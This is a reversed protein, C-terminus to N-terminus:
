RIADSDGLLRPATMLVIYLDFWFGAREMYEMDLRVRERVEDASHVPGRSGNIQAWGSLGPKMRHRHAYEAVINHVEVEEATMSIPHPRPGVLSMDGAFINFLQPLEDLSTRRLFKGIRTIRSDNAETQQIRGEEAKKDPRMSRFKWVRIQKNNFGHRKQRFFIPGPSDLKILMAIVLMVPAFALLMGSALVIDMIRKVAARRADRPTGSIYAAPLDSIAAVSTSEPAFGDLDMVLIIEQPLGRLKDIMKRVRDQATSTVTVIIRDIRPLDEWQLLEDVTGIVDIGNIQSPARDLRDDFIGLINMERIAANKRIVEGAAQTAGIIAVNESLRGSRVLSKFAVIYHAHLATFGLLLTASVYTLIGPDGGFGLLRSLVNIVVLACGAGWVTRVMHTSAREDYIFWYAGAMRMGFFAAIPAIVYPLAIKLSIDFLQIGFSSCAVFILTLGLVIDMSRALYRIGSRDIPFRRPPKRVTDTDLQAPIIEVRTGTTSVQGSKDAKSSHYTM